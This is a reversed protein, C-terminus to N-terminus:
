PWIHSVSKKFSFSWSGKEAFSLNKQNEDLGTFTGYFYEGLFATFYVYKGSINRSPPVIYHLILANTETAV